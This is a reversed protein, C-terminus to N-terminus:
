ALKRRRGRLLALGGTLLSLAAAASAPDIEPAAAPQPTLAQSVLSYNNQSGVWDIKFTPAWGTLDAATAGTLSFTLNLSSGSVAYPSPSAAFCFMNGNGSCGNSNLGGSPDALDFGAPATADLFYTPSGLDTFAFSGIGTRGDNALIPSSNIGTISLTFSDVYDSPFKSDAGLTPTGETLTYSIGDSCTITTGSSCTVTAYAPGALVGAAAVLAFAQITSKV